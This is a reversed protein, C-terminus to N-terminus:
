KRTRSTSMKGFLKANGRLFDEEGQFQKEDVDHPDFPTFILCDKKLTLEGYINESKILYFCKVKICFSTPSEQCGMFATPGSGYSRDTSEEIFDDM